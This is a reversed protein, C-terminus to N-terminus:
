LTLTLTLTITLTLIPTPSLSSVGVMITTPDDNGCIHEIGAVVKGGKVRMRKQLAKRSGDKLFRIPPGTRAGPGGWTRSTAKIKKTAVLDVTLSRIRKQSERITCEQEAILKSAQELKAEM